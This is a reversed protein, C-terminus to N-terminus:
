TQFSISDRNPISLATSNSIFMVLFRVSLIAEVIQSFYGKRKNKNLAIPPSFIAINSVAVVFVIGCISTNMLMVQLM